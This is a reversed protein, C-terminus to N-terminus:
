GQATSPPTFVQMDAPSAAALLHPTPREAFAFLHAPCTCDSAGCRPLPISSDPAAHLALALRHELRQPGPCLWVEVLPLAARLYDIHWHPKAASAAGARLHHGLRGALGGPGFASGVYLLWGPALAAV